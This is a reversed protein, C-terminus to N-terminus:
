ESLSAKMQSGQWNRCLLLSPFTVSLRFSSSDNLWQDVGLGYGERQSICQPKYPKVPQIPLVWQEGTHSNKNLALASVHPRLTPIHIYSSLPGNWGDMSAVGLTQQWFVTPSFPSRWYAALPQSCISLPSFPQVVNALPSIYPHYSARDAIYSTYAASTTCQTM